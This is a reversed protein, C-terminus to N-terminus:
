LDITREGIALYKDLYGRVDKNEVLNETNLKYGTSRRIGALATSVLVLDVSYHILKGLVM